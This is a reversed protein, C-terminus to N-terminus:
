RMTVTLPDLVYSVGATIWTIEASNMNLDEGISASVVVVLGQFFSTQAIAMTTTLVFLCEQLTSSFCEPRDNPNRLRESQPPGSEEQAATM